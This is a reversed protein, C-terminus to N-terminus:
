RDVELQVFRTGDPRGAAVWSFDRGFTFVDRALIAESRLAEIGDM